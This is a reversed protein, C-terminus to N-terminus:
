KNKKKNKIIQHIPTLHTKKSRHDARRTRLCMDCERCTRRGTEEIFTDMFPEQEHQLQVTLFPHRRGPCASVARRTDKCLRAPHCAKLFSSLSLILFPIAVGRKKQVGVKWRPSLGFQPTANICYKIKKEKKRREQYLLKPDCVGSNPHFMERVCVCTCYSDPPHNM